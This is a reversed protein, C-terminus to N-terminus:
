SLQNHKATNTFIGWFFYFMIKMILGGLTFQAFTQTAMSRKATQDPKDPLTQDQRSHTKGVPHGFFRVLLFVFIALCPLSTLM